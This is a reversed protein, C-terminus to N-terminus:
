KGRNPRVVKGTYASARLAGTKIPVLQQSRRQVRLGAVLLWKVISNTKKYIQRVISPIEPMVEKYADELYKAQKGPAHALDTREHVHIAYNMTYGVVVSEKTDKVAKRGRSTLDTKLKTLGMLRMNIM